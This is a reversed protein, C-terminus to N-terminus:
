KSKRWNGSGDNLYEGKWINDSNIIMRRFDNLERIETRLPDLILLVDKGTKGEVFESFLIDGRSRSIIIKVIQSDIESLYATVSFKQGSLSLDKKYQHFTLGGPFPTSYKYQYQDQRNSEGTILGDIEFPNCEDKVALLLKKIEEASLPRAKRYIEAELKEKRLRILEEHKKKAENFYRSNPYSTMFQKISEPTGELVANDWAIRANNERQRSNSEIQRVLNEGLKKKRAIELPTIGKHSSISFDAGSELLLTIIKKNKNSVAAFAATTGDTTRIDSDAGHKILIEAIKTYGKQAAWFLPTLGYNNPIDADANFELLLKVTDYRGANAAHILPTLGIHSKCDPNAGRELLLRATKLHNKDVAWLLPTVGKKNAIEPDAGQDLLFRVMETEGNYAAEILPTASNPARGNIDAGDKLHKWADSIKGKGAAEFLNATMCGSIILIAFLTLLILSVLQGKFPYHKMDRPYYNSKM